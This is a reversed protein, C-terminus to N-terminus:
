AHAAIGASVSLSPMKVCLLCWGATQLIVMRAILWRTGSACQLNLGYTHWPPTGFERLM